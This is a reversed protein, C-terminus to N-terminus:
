KISFAGVKIAKNIDPIKSTSYLLDLDQNKLEDMLSTEKENIKKDVFLILKELLSQFRGLDPDLDILNFINTDLLLIDKKIEEPYLYLAIPNQEYGSNSSHALYTHRLSMLEEHLKKEGITAFILSNKDLKIKRYESTTFCKGYNLTSSYFLSLRVIENLKYTRGPLSKILEQIMLECYHLDKRILTYGAYQLAAKSPPLLIYPVTKGEFEKITVFINAEEDWVVHVDFKNKM